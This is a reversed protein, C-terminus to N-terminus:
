RIVADIIYFTEFFKKNTQLIKYIYGATVLRSYLDGMDM